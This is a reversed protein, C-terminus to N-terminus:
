SPRSRLQARDILNRCEGGGFGRHREQFESIHLILDYGKDDHGDYM